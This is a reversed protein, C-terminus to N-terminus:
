LPPPLQTALWVLKLGPVASGYWFFPAAAAEGQATMYTAWTGAYRALSTAAYRFGINYVHVRVALLKALLVYNKYCDYFSKINRYIKDGYRTWYM